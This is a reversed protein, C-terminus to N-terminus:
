RPWRPLIQLLHNTGSVLPHGKMSPIAPFYLRGQGTKLPREWKQPTALSPLLSERVGLPHPLYPNQPDESLRSAGLPRNDGSQRFYGQQTNSPLTFFQQAQRKERGAHTLTSPLCPSFSSPPFHPSTPLIQLKAPPVNPKPRGHCM